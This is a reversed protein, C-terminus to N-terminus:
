LRLNHGRDISLLLSERLGAVSAVRVGEGSETERLLGCAGPMKRRLLFTRPIAVAISM